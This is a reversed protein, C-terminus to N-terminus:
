IGKCHKPCPDAAPDGRGDPATMVLFSNEAGSTHRGSMERATLVLKRLCYITTQFFLLHTSFSTEGDSYIGSISQYPAPSRQTHWCSSGTNTHSFPIPLVTDKMHLTTKYTFLVRSPLDPMSFSPEPNLRTWQQHGDGSCLSWGPDDREAPPPLLCSHRARAIGKRLKLKGLSRCFGFFCCGATWTAMEMDDVM